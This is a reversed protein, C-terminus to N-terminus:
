APPQGAADGRQYVKHWRRRQCNPCAYWIYKTGSAGWRIGGAEWYSREHGCVRCCLMWTKSEAQLEKASQPFLRQFFQQIRGM